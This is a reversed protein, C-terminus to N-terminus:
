RKAEFEQANFSTVTRIGSIVEEAVGGANAYADMERRVSKSLRHASYVISFTILPTMALMILTLQWSMYLGVFVGIALSSIAQLMIIFKDCMGSKIKEIGDTMKQTLAGVENHDFWSMDQNLITEFLKMKILYTQRECLTYMCGMALMVIMFEACGLFFFRWLYVTIKGSFKDMNEALTGNHYQFQGEMLADSIGGETYCHLSYSLGTLISGTLAASLMWWDRPEAYRLMERFSATQYENKVGDKPEKPNFCCMKKSKGDKRAGMKRSSGSIEELSFAEEPNEISMHVGNKQSNFNINCKEQPSILPDSQGENTPLPSTLRDKTM